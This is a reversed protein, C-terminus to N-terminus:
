TCFFFYAEVIVGAFNKKKTKGAFNRSSINKIEEKREQSIMLTIKPPSQLIEQPWAKSRTIRTQLKKKKKLKKGSKFRRSKKQQRQERESM